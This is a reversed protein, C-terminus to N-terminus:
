KPSDSYPCAKEEWDDELEEGGSQGDEATETQLLSAM